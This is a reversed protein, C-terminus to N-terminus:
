EPEQEPGNQIINYCQIHEHNLELRSCAVEPRVDLQSFDVEADPTDSCDYARDGTFSITPASAASLVVDVVEDYHDSELPDALPEATSGLWAEIFSDNWEDVGCGGSVEAKVAGDGMELLGIQYDAGEANGDILSVSGYVLDNFECSQENYSNSGNMNGTLTARDSYQNFVMDGWFNDSYATNAFQHQMHIVKPTAVGDVSDVFNGDADLTGTVEAMDSFSMPGSSMSMVFTMSFDSGDIEQNLYMDQELEGEQNQRCAFMEFRSINGDDNKVVRFKVLDPTGGEGEPNEAEGTLSFVHYEGDYIDIGSNEGIQVFTSTVYCQILDGQAAENIATKTMNFMQCAAHSSSQSFDDATISGLPLGVASSGLKIVEANSLSANATAGALVAATSDPLGDITTIGVTTGGSSTTSTSGGGCAAVGAIMLLAVAIEFMRRM